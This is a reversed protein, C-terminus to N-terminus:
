SRCRRRRLGLLGLAAISLGALGSPGSPKVSCACGEEDMMGTGSDTGVEGTLTDGTTPGATPDVSTPDNTPDTGADSESGVDTDTDSPDDTTGDTPEGTTPDGTTPDAPEGIGVNVPVSEAILGAGDEAVAILEWTGAPFQLTFTYPPYTDAVPQEDGNIKIRVEKLGWGEDYADIEINLTNEEVPYEAGDMPNTISVVPPDNDPQADFPDGCTSAAGISPTGACWDGWSGYGESGGAFFGQCEFTPNWTGDLDHCPTIDVGTRSELWPVAGHIMSHQGTGGCGGTVTSAIGFPRWSGDELQLFAPGGSDGPCIGPNPNGGVNAVSNTVGLVQTMGWRLLGAGSSNAQNGGYGVIAVDIGAQLQNVECGGYLPPSFPIETIPDQLLCFAWDHAQDNVGQYEPNTECFMVNATKDAASAEQGFGITKNGGGCHAAYVVVRPHVLTGTCLGGGSRVSVVTPWGCEVVEQGNIITEPDADSDSLLPGDAAAQPAIALTVLATSAVLFRTLHSSLQDTM